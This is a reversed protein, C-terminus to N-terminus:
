PKDSEQLYGVNMALKRYRDALRDILKFTNEVQAKGEDKYTLEFCNPLKTSVSDRYGPFSMESIVSGSEMPRPSMSFLHTIEVRTM